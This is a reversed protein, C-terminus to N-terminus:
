SRYHSSLEIIHVTGTNQKSNEWEIEMELRWKDQVRISYRNEHGKMREFNLSPTKWLDYIDKAAELQQIRMFFKKIINKQYMRSKGSQYLKVLRDNRFDVQM